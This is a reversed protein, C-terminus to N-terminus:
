SGAAPVPQSIHAHWVRYADTAVDTPTLRVAPDLRQLWLLGPRDSSETDERVALRKLPTTLPSEEIVFIGDPEMLARRILEPDM